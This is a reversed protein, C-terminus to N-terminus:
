RFIHVYAVVSFVYSSKTVITCCWPAARLGSSPVSCQTVSQAVRRGATAVGLARWRMLYRSYWRCHPTACTSWGYLCQVVCPWMCVFCNQCLLHIMFLLYTHLPFQHYYVCLRLLGQPLPKFLLRGVIFSVEPAQLIVTYEQASFFLPAPPSFSSTTEVITFFAASFHCAKVCGALCWKGQWLWKLARLTQGGSITGTRLKFFFFLAM